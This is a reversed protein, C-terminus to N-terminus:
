GSVLDTAVLAIRTLGLAQLCRPTEDVFRWGQSGLPPNPHRVLRTSDGSHLLDSGGGATWAPMDQVYMTKLEADLYVERRMAQLVLDDDYRELSAELQALMALKWMRHEDLIRGADPHFLGFRLFNSTPMATPHQSAGRFLERFARNATQVNWRHDVLFAPHSQANILVSHQELIADTSANRQPHRHSSGQEPEPTRGVAIRFLRTTQYTTMELAAALAYLKEDTWERVIGREWNGYARSTMQLRDAVAEQSLGLHDRRGQVLDRLRSPRTVVADGSAVPRALGNEQM